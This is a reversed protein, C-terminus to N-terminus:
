LVQHWHEWVRFLTNEMQVLWWSVLIEPKRLYTYHNNTNQSLKM